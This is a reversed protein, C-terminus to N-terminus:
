QALERELASTLTDFKKHNQYYGDVLDATQWVVGGMSRDLCCWIHRNEKKFRDAYLYNNEKRLETTYGFQEALKMNEEFVIKTM